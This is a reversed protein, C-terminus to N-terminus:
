NDAVFHRAISWAAPALALSGSLLCNVSGSTDISGAVLVFGSIVQLGGVMFNLSNLM